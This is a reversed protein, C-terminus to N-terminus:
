NLVTLKRYKRVKGVEVLDYYKDVAEKFATARIEASEDLLNM